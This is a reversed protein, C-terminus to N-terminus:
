QLQHHHVRNPHMMSHQVHGRMEEFEAGRDGDDAHGEIAAGSRTGGEAADELATSTSSTVHDVGSRGDEPKVTSALHFAAMPDQVVLQTKVEDLMKLEIALRDSPHDRLKAGTGTRHNHAEREIALRQRAGQEFAAKLAVDLALSHSGYLMNITDVGSILDILMVTGLQPEPTLAPALVAAEAMILDQQLQAALHRVSVNNRQPQM